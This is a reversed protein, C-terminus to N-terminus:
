TVRIKLDNGNRYLGNIPVGAAAAAGDSGYNGLGGILVGGNGTRNLNIDGDSELEIEAGGTAARSIVFRSGVAVGNYYMNVVGSAGGAPHTFRLGQNQNTANVLALRNQFGAIGDINLSGGVDLQATAPSKAIAIQQFADIYLGTQLTGADDATQFFLDQGSPNIVSDTTFIKAADLEAGLDDIGRFVISKSGVSPGVGNPAIYLDGTLPVTSGATLPLFPGGISPVVFPVVFTALDELRVSKTPRGTQDMKSLLLLDNAVLDAGAIQPFTYVIAM